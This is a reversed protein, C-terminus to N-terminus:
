ARQSKRAIGLTALSATAVLAAVGGADPEPLYVDDFLVLIAGAETAKNAILQLDVAVTEAPFVLVDSEAVRWDGIADDSLPVQYPQIISSCDASDRPSVAVRGAGTAGGSSAIRLAARVVLDANPDIPVCQHVLVNTIGLENLVRLSGSLPDGGADDPIFTATAGSWGAVDTDFDGNVVLNQARSVDGLACALGLAAAVSLRRLDM